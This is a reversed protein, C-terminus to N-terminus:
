SFGQSVSTMCPAELCRQALGKLVSGVVKTIMTARAACSKCVNSLSLAMMGQAGGFVKASPYSLHDHGSYGASSSATVADLAGQTAKQEGDKPHATPLITAKARHQLYSKAQQAAATGLINKLRQYVDGVGDTSPALLVDLIVVTTAVNQSARAFAPLQRKARAMVVIQGAELTPKHHLLDALRAEAAVWEGVLKGQHRV